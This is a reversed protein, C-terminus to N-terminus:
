LEADDAVEVPDTYAPDLDEEGARDIADAAAPEADASPDEQEHVHERPEGVDAAETTTAAAAAEDEGREESTAAPQTAHVVDEAEV